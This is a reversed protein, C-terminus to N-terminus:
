TLTASAGLAFRLSRRPNLSAENKVASLLSLGLGAGRKQLSLISPKAGGLPRRKLWLCVGWWLSWRM